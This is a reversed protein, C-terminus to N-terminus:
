KITNARLLKNNSNSRDGMANNETIREDLTRSLCEIQRRLNSSQIQETLTKLSNLAPRVSEAAKTSISSSNLFNDFTEVLQACMLRAYTCVHVDSSDNALMILVPLIKTVLVQAWETPKITQDTICSLIQRFIILLFEKTQTQKRLRESRKKASNNAISHHNLHSTSSDISTSSKFVNAAFRNTQTRINNTLQKCANTTSSPLDCSSTSSKIFSSTRMVQNSYNVLADLVYTLFKQRTSPSHIMNENTAIIKISLALTEVDQRSLQDLSMHQRLNSVVEEYEHQEIPEFSTLTAMYIIHLSSILGQYIPDNMCQKIYPRLKAKAFHKGFLLCMQRISSIATLLGATPNTKNDSFKVILLMLKPLFKSMIWEISEVNHEQELQDHFAVIAPEDVVMTPDLLKNQFKVPGDFIQFNSASQQSRIDMSHVSMSDIQGNGYNVNLSKADQPEKGNNNLDPMSLRSKSLWACSHVADSFVFTILYSIMKARHSALNDSTPEQGTGGATLYEETKALYFEALDVKFRNLKVAWMCILPYITELCCFRMEEIEFRHECFRLPTQQLLDDILDETASLCADFVEDNRDMILTLLCAYSKCAALRVAANKDRLLQILISLILNTRMAPRVYHALTACSEALLIRREPFKDDVHDWLNPLLLTSSQHQPSVQLIVTLGSLIMRRQEENPRKILNFLLSLLREQESTDDCVRITCTILPILDIRKSIIVNPVIHHLYKALLNVLKSNNRIAQVLDFMLSENKLHQEPLDVKLMCPVISRIPNKDLPWFQACQADRVYEQYLDIDDSPKKISSNILKDILNPETQCSVSTFTKTIELQSNSDGDNNINGDNLQISNNYNNKTKSTVNIRSSGTLNMINTDIDTIIDNQHSSSLNNEMISESESEPGLEDSM